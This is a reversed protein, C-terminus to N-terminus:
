YFTHIPPQKRNSTLNQGTATLVKQAQLSSDNKLVKLIRARHKAFVVWYHHLTKRRKDEHAVPRVPIGADKLREVTRKTHRGNSNLGAERVIKSVTIFIANGSRRCRELHGRIQGDSLSDLIKQLKKDDTEREIMKKLEMYNTYIKPLEIGWRKLVKRIFIMTQPSIGLEAQIQVPDTMGREVLLKKVKFSSGGLSESLKERSRQTLPKALPLTELPYEGKLRQSATHWINPLFKENLQRARERTIGYSEGVEELTKDQFAYRFGVKRQRSWADVSVKKPKGPLIKSVGEKIRERLFELKRQHATTFIEKRSKFTRPVNIGWRRLTRRARTLDRASIGLIDMIQKSDTIGKEMILEKVKVALGGKARSYNERMKQTRPKRSSIKKLPNRSQLESSSNNWLNKIFKNSLQRVGETKLPKEREGQFIKGLDTLSEESFAYTIGIDQQREWQKPTTKPPLRSLAGEAIATQIFALKKEHPTSRPTSLNEIRM